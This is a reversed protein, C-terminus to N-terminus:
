KTESEKQEIWTVEERAGERREKRGRGEGRESEGRVRQLRPNRDSMM